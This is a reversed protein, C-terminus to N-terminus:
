GLFVNLYVVKEHCELRDHFLCLFLQDIVHFRVIDGNVVANFVDHGDNGIFPLAEKGSEKEVVATLNDKHNSEHCHEFENFHTVDAEPLLATQGFDADKSPVRVLNPVQSRREMRRKRFLGGFGSWAWDLM